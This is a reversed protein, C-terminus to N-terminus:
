IDKIAQRPAHGASILRQETEENEDQVNLNHVPLDVVIQFSFARLVIGRVNV